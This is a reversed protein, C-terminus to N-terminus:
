VMRLGRALAAAETAATRIHGDHTLGSRLRPALDHDGDAFAVIRVSAPLGATAFEAPTGFPDREGQLILLPRRCATLPALRLAEPKGPPHLPYGFVVVGAIADALAGAVPRPATGGAPEELRGEGPDLAGMDDGVMDVGGAVMTAVRGGLSKGGVLLPGEALPTAVAVAGMFEGVLAEARPPPRRSGSRRAAMYAFEFRLVTIGAAALASAYAAMVPADMAVGAGHALLLTALPDAARDVLLDPGAM